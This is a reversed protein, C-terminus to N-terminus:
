AGTCWIMNEKTVPLSMSVLQGQGLVSSTRTLHAPEAENGLVHVVSLILLVSDASRSFKHIHTHRCCPIVNLNDETM